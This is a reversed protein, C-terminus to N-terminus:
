LPRMAGFSRNMIAGETKILLFIKPLTLSQSAMVSAATKPM